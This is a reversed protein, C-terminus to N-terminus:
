KSSFHNVVISGAFLVYIFVLYCTVHEMHQDNVLCEYVKFFTTLVGVPPNNDLEM